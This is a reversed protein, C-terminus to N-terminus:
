LVHLLVGVDMPRALHSKQIIHMTYHMTIAQHTFKVITSTYYVNASCSKAVYLAGTTVSSVKKYGKLIFLMSILQSIHFLNPYSGLDIILM